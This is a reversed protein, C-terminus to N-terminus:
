KNKQFINKLSQKINIDKFRINKKLIRISIYVFLSVILVYISSDPWILNLTYNKTTFPFFLRTGVHTFHKMTLDFLFHSMAGLNFFLIIKIKNYRFLPTILISFLFMVVPTHFPVFSIIPPINFYVYILFFKSLIDPM